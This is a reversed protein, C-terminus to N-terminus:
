IISCPNGFLSETASHVSSLIEIRNNQICKNEIIYFIEIIMLYEENLEDLLLILM